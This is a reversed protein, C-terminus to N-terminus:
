GLTVDAPDVAVLAAEVKPLQAVSWQGKEDAVLRIVSGRVPKLPSTKEALARAIFKLAEGTLVVTDGRKTYAIVQKTNAELVVAPVLDGVVDKEQLAEEIAEDAEDKSAAISVSGEPGRYGHRRDYELIGKRLAALAAEQDLKRITTYVRIGSVYIKEGYQEFLEQRTMEAVYDAIVPYVQRERDFKLVEARAVKVGEDNLYNLENMRRLVYQQRLTARKLNNFPNYLSPAKPIGALM